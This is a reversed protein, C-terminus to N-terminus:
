DHRLSEIPDLGGAKYAPYIGSVLGTIVCIVIGAIMWAWPVVFTGGLLFPVFNGMVFGLFVGLFGGIVCIVVAETLFQTLIAQRTAGLAKRVGVEKTRETVSVLMINMLGIAAGILTMGAIVYTGIRITSTSEMLINVIADSKSIEFDDADGPRLGRARRFAGEAVAMAAEMDTAAKVAVTVQYTPNAGIYQRAATIPVIGFRDNSSMSAGKGKLVGIVRFKKNNISIVRGLARQRSGGILIDALDAGIIAVKQGNQIEIESFNRGHEIEFGKALLYNEDGGYISINPNTKEDKYKLVSGNSWTVALAVDAPYTYSEKFDVAQKYTIVEGRKQRRGNTRIGDGKRVIEFSNSGMSSFSNSLSAKIGDIATLIAVLAMIGIAIIMVTLATRLLNGKISRLAIKINESLLM